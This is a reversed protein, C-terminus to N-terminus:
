YHVEFLIEAVGLPELVGEDTDISLITIQQTYQTCQRKDKYELRANDELVTEIDEILADLAEAANDENVYARAMVNLYRNKYGGGQYERTESGANLHVAPFQDVEDWFILRPSVNDELDTVFDGDGNIQKIVAVLAHVISQRRSTYQRNTIM